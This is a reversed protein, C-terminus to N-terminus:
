NATHATTLPEAPQQSALDDAAMYAFTTAPGLTSGGSWYGAGAASAVCNGAGYLGPITTGDDRLIRGTPTAKPGGNTDLVGGALIICHYPGASLPYMTPNKDNEVHSPGNWDLEAANEGRHFDEDVGASAMANFREVTQKARAKFDPALRVNAVREGYGALRADIADALGDFSDATIVWPQDPEPDPWRNPQSTRDDVIFDDYILFLLHNPLGGAEDRQFHIKSREHYILKENVVRDGAANLMLASDGPFVGVHNVVEPDDLMQEVPHQTGWGQGMNGLEAGLRQAIEIFDGRGTPVACGGYLGGPFYAATLERNHVYGGTAFLVGKRAYLTESGNPTEVKVGVVRGQDGTLVDTVRHRVRLEIEREAALAAVQAILHVGAGEGGNARAPMLHAGFGNETDGHYEVMAEYEGTFSPFERLSLGLGIMEDFVRAGNDYYVSILEFERAGLGYREAGEDFVDPYALRCMHRMAWERNPAKGRARMLSNDPVWMGAGSKYTTGGGEQAAELMVVSEGLDHLRIAAVYGAMGSGVVIADFTQSESVSTGEPRAPVGDEIVRDWWPDRYPNRSGTM